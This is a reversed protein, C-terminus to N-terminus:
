LILSWLLRIPFSTHAPLAPTLWHNAPVPLFDDVVDWDSTIWLLFFCCCFVPGVSALFLMMSAPPPGWEGPHVLHPCCSRAPSPRWWSANAGAEGTWTPSRLTVAAKKKKTEKEATHGRGKASSAAGLSAATSSRIDAVARRFAAPQHDNGVLLVDWDCGLKPRCLAIWLHM